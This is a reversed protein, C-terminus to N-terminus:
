DRQAEHFKTINRRAIDIASRLNQDVLAAATEIEDPSVGLSTLKVQDFKETYKLIAGDGGTKVDEFVPRVKDELAQKEMVPRKVLEDWTSIDPEIVNRM